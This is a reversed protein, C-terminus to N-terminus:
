VWDLVVSRTLNRPRDPDLGRRVSHLSALRHVAVLEAMPDVDNALWHAGARRVDDELGPSAAGLSWTVRGPAAISIPGHRYEMSPYAETWLQAAERLKLAAELAIGYAWGDGLFTFQDAAAIEPELPRQLADRAADIAPAIDDGVSTRLLALTSTAFRTQVVSREDAFELVVIENALKPLPSNAVATVVTSRDAIPPGSLIRICETTTGSRSIVVLRDYHRRAPVQSAAFADTQGHGAAERLAAYAIAMFWSTGCGVIAVSEGVAPLRDGVAAALEAASAWCSPQSAIEEDIYSM